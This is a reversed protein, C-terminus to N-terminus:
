NVPNAFREKYVDRGYKAIFNDRQKSTWKRPDHDVPMAPESEPNVYEAHGDNQMAKAVLSQYEELGYWKVFSDREEESWDLVNGEPAPPKQEEKKAEPNILPIEPQAVNFTQQWATNCDCRYTSQVNGNPERDKLVPENISECKPCHMALNSYQM